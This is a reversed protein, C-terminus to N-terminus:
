AVHQHRGSVRSTPATDGHALAWPWVMRTLPGFHYGGCLRGAHRCGSPNPVAAVAVAIATPFETTSNPPHSLLLTPAYTKFITRRWLPGRGRSKQGLLPCRSRTAARERSKTVPSEFLILSISVFGGVCGWPALLVLVHVEGVRIRLGLLALDVRCPGRWRPFKHLLAM